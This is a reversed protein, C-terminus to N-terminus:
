ASINDDTKYFGAEEPSHYSPAIKLKSGEAEVAHHVKRSAMCAFAFDGGAFLGAASIEGFAKAFGDAPLDDAPAGAKGGEGGGGLFFLIDEGVDETGSVGGLFFDLDSLWTEVDQGCDGALEITLSNTRDGKSTRFFACAIAFDEM